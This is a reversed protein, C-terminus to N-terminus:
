LSVGNTLVFDADPEKVRMRKLEAIFQASDDISKRILDPLSFGTGYLERMANEIKLLV